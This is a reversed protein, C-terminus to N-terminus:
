VLIELLQLDLFQVQLLYQLVQLLVRLLMLLGIFIMIDVYSESSVGSIRIVDNINSYTKEVELVAQVFGSSQTTVGVVHMTNGVGYASGGDMIKVATITGSGNVTLKATANKGTISSGISVLQANYIDGASGSGYGAGGSSIGIKTIRNLGHDLVTTITHATGSNSVINTIGVGIEADNIYKNLTEKTLSNQPNNVVVEGITGPVAFSKTEAPDSVPTDRNTQPYLNKVPQSFKEEKFPTVTPSNSANAVTIYYIGDQKGAVYDQAEKSSYIYYTDKYQKRKFYPLSTNRTSTDSTFTGPDTTLGVSFGKASSVGVVEYYRNYGTNATGATNATSVVNVLEVKSGVSLHHPLETTVNIHTDDWNADAIFSFNRQENVNAISGSGFYSQVEGTTAGIGTGSEQLIYGDAPPRAVTIGSASPIVDRMRYMTDVANRSDTKRKIYSRTTATGLGTSGLGVMTSQITNETSATAVNVYWQSKGSGWQIPHGKDGPLKDSVRSIVKLLGGKNNIALATDNLAENLTKGLKINTNTAIGSGATIAYYVTNSELGDPIQGTDGIVRISEGNIFSHPATFTIVNDNGGDSNEGISNIGTASQQVTFIKEASVQTLDEGSTAKYGDMIIRSSYETVTGGYSVLLKLEETEKAGIRYGELVNEPKVDQNLQNYLYLNGDSGVGASVSNLTQNVDLAEFEIASQTLPVEKPPIVHTIYGIDDQTYATDRFGKSSLAIAGFNSNSNTLSIDGGNETLFHQAYGIAFVSVAQITANNTVKIHFNRYAPKYVAKSNTSLNSVTLSTDYNGSPVDSTNFRVFANDDKQLGIGTFQAVVMSKFGTAKKGDAIMGCMGYVSRLSCNFIYPSSSTVTDSSLTLTAGTAAPNATSPSNQVTYELTTTSPRASVVFKGDYGSASIGSVRFPTDVDLGSLASDMTVTITTSATTGDGARISSIGVSNGTSGVIRYEDIRPQIDISSSPYDPQIPRGSSQGYALGVKEYYMELDTRDTTFDKIFEDNIKIDNVGDAYEFCTLKHHSFNPVFENTTYDKYVKGNPDGDFM